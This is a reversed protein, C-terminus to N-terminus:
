FTGGPQLPSQVTIRLSDQQLLLIQISQPHEISLRMKDANSSGPIVVMRQPRYKIKSIVASVQHKAIIKKGQSRREPYGFTATAIESNKELSQWWNAARDNSIPPKVKGTQERQKAKYVPAKAPIKTEGIKLCILLGCAIRKSSKVPILKVANSMPKSPSCMTEFVNKVLAMEPDIRPKDIPILRPM